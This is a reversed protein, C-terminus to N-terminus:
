HYETSPLTAWFAAPFRMLLKFSPTFNLERRRGQQPKWRRRGQQFHWWHCCVKFWFLTLSKQRQTHPLRAWFSELRLFLSMRLATHLDQRSVGLLRRLMDEFRKGRTKEWSLYYFTQPAAPLLWFQWRLETLSYKLFNVSEIAYISDYIFM